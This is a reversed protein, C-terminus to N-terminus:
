SIGWIEVEENYQQMYQRKLLHILGKGVEDTKSFM